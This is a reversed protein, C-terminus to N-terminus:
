NPHIVSGASKYKDISVRYLIAGTRYVGVYHLINITNAMLYKRTEYIKAGNVEFFEITALGSVPSNISLSFQKDYPNPFAIVSLKSKVLEAEIRSSSITSTFAPPSYAITNTLMRCGEFANNITAVALQIYLAGIATNAGGLVDNALQFLGNVNHAYGNSGDLYLVVNHPLGFKVPSGTLVGSSCSTQATTMLTDKSLDISGLTSSTRLNFWLAIVQSALQNNIKGKQSGSIPIPVLYWTSNDDYYAGDYPLINDILLPQSNGSGPLMKFINGNTIDTKYLTFFRRNSVSGFIKSTTVGFANFMLQSSSLTTESNNYCAKGKDNGYFGQSYACAVTCNECPINQMMGIGLQSFDSINLRRAFGDSVNRGLGNLPELSSGPPVVWDAGNASPDPRRLIGFQNDVLGTFGNFYLQLGYSGGSPGADPVLSWVGGNNVAFYAASNEVVNLGADTGPKPGFSATLYNTGAVNNNAFQLLHSKANDGVPFDYTSTNAAILRRFNGNVWSNIYGANSVDNLLSSTNSNNLFVHNTATNIKGKILHLLNSIVLNNNLSLGGANVEVAYFITHGSFNHNKNSSFIVLGTGNLGGTVSNDVWDSSNAIPNNNLQITGNNTLSGGNQLTLGGQLTLQAGSQITLVVGNNIQLVQQAPSTVVATLSCLLFLNKKM